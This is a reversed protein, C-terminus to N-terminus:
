PSDRVLMGGGGGPWVLESPIQSSNLIKMQSSCKIRMRAAGSRLYIIMIEKCDLHTKELQSLDSPNVKCYHAAVDLPRIERLCIYQPSTVVYQYEVVTM